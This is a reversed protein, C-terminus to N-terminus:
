FIKINFIFSKQQFYTVTIYYLSLIPNWLVYLLGYLVCPESYYVLYVRSFLELHNTIDLMSLPGPM